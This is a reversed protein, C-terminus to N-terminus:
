CSVACACLRVRMRVRVRLPHPLPPACYPYTPHSEVWPAIINRRDKSALV